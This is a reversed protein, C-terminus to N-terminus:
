EEKEKEIFKLIDQYIEERGTENLLEHRKKDYLKAVINQYGMEKLFTILQYFKKESQIVPDERGAIMYIPLTSNEINWGKKNYAEKMMEFLNFFGNTTFIFGCLPDQNYNRVTELNSCIWENEEKFGKNYSGFTLRNLLTNPTKAKGFLNEIKALFIATGVLNNQTPPGCLVLKQIAKDYKKLYCRAVLTGMSHSFLTIDLNPYREKIFTTVQYLDDVIGDMEETYFYGLDKKSKVSAGHGRHDHIVTIYGRSALYNMFDEYREKHEAMGHSFQVIGRAKGEPEMMMLSLPLGDKKSIITEQRKKVMKNM